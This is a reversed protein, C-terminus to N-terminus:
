LGERLKAKYLKNRPHTRLMRNCCPCRVMDTKIYIDCSMCRKQGNKYRGGVDMRPTKFKSCRGTCVM